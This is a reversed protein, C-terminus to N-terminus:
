RQPKKRHKDRHKLKNDIEHKESEFDYNKAFMRKKLEHANKFCAQCLDLDNYIYRLDFKLREQCFNCRIFGKWNALELDTM